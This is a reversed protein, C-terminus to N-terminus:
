SDKKANNEDGLIEEVDTGHSMLELLAMLALQEGTKDKFKEWARDLERALARDYEEPALDAERYAIAKMMMLKKALEKVMDSTSVLLDQKKEEPTMRKLRERDIMALGRYRVDHFRYRVARVM